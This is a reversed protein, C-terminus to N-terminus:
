ITKADDEMDMLVQKRTKLTLSPRGLGVHAWERFGGPDIVRIEHPLTGGCDPLLLHIRYAFELLWIHWPDSLM